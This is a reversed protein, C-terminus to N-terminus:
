CFVVTKRNKTLINRRQNLQLWWKCIRGPIHYFSSSLVNRFIFNKPTGGVFGVTRFRTRQAGRSTKKYSLFEYFLKRVISLYRNSV